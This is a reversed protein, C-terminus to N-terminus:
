FQDAADALHSVDCMYVLCTACIFSGRRVYSHIMDCIHLPVDNVKTNVNVRMQLILRHGEIKTDTVQLYIYM